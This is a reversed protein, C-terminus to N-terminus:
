KGALRRVAPIVDFVLMSKDSSERSITMRPVSYAPSIFFPTKVIIFKKPGLRPTKDICQEAVASLTVPEDDNINPRDPVPLVVSEASGFRRNIPSSSCQQDSSPMKLM